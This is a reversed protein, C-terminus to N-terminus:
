KPARKPRETEQETARNAAAAAGELNKMDDAAWVEAERRRVPTKMVSRFVGIKFFAFREMLELAINDIVEEAFPRARCRRRSSRTASLVSRM